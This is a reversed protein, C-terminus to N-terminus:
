GQSGKQHKAIFDKLYIGVGIAVAAGTLAMFASFTAGTKNWTYLSWASFASSSFIATSMVIKHMQILQM